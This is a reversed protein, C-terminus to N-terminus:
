LNPYQKGVVALCERLKGLSKPEIWQPLWGFTKIVLTAADYLKSIHESLTNIDKYMVNKQKTLTAVQSQEERVVEARQQTAYHVVTATDITGYLYGCLIDGPVRYCNESPYSSFTKGGINVQIGNQEIRYLRPSVYEEDLKLFPYKEGGDSTKWVIEFLGFITSKISYNPSTAFAVLGNVGVEPQLLLRNLCIVSESSKGSNTPISSGFLRINGDCQKHSIGIVGNVRVISLADGIISKM